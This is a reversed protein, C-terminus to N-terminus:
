GGKEKGAEDIQTRASIDMDLFMRLLVAQM